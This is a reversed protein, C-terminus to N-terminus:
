KPAGLDDSNSVFAIMTGDPSWSPVNITGQGGYVYAIITPTGGEIPMKRIYVHRYYPHDAAAVDKQYSLFVISKGDPSVHPFWDNYAHDNTLREQGTGDANMKWLQMAGSRVSNFYITRGDPSFEPGDDVGTAQTLQQEPESGDSRISYIDYEGNRGGTYVLWRGDPSWGHLYSPTLPTIRTPEGGTAPLTYITSEGNGQSQDSIGMRTGDFSLVHDNNNRVAFGTDLLAPKRTALDFRLLRGRTEGRGSGNLILASGDPTWNPAEFPDSSTYLVQRFGTALDLVELTSGIYDRYPVFDPKAPKIIRVDRFLGREVVEANHSCLFLGAYVEEGLDIDAIETVTFPDGYKAVSMIYTAGRRELQVVDPAKVETRVDATDGGKAKRFQLAALGDGHIAADVYAADEDLGGRIMLGLKRHPDVGEDLLEVQAQLIFDGAMKKWVFRLEDRTGWVNVGAASLAYEQSVANYTSSGALKPSGIDGHGEFSGLGQAAATSSFAM